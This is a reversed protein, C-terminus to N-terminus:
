DKSPIQLLSRLCYVKRNVSSISNERIKRLEIIFSDIDKIQIATVTLGKSQIWEFYEKLDWGYSKVTNDALGRQFRLFDLFQPLYENEM